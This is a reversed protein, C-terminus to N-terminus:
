IQPLEADYNSILDNITARSSLNPANDLDDLINPFTEEVTEIQKHAFVNKAMKDYLPIYASLSLVLVACLHLIKM